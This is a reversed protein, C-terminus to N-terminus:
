TRTARSPRSRSASSGASWARPSSRWSCPACSTGGGGSAGGAYRCDDMPVDSSLAVAFHTAAKVPGGRLLDARGAGDIVVLIPPKGDAHDPAWAVGHEAANAYTM